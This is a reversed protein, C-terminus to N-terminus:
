AVNRTYEEANLETITKTLRAIMDKTQDFDEYQPEAHELLEEPVFSLYANSIQQYIVGNEDKGTKQEGEYFATAFYKGDIKQVHDCFQFVQDNIKVIGVKSAFDYFKEPKKSYAVM